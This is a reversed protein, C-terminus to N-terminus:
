SRSAGSRVQESTESETRKGFLLLVLLGLLLGNRYNLVLVGWLTHEDLIFRLVILPYILTTLICAQLFISRSLRGTKGDLVTLFPILWTLFQPSLVKGSIMFALVAAGAYRVGEKMGSRRYRWMVFILGLCQMPLAIRAFPNGWDPTVHLAGHNYSWTVTQGTAKGYLMLLGAYLSEVELGRDAHYLFSDAVRRGGLWIWYAMGIAVTAVFSLLGRCRIQRFWSAEWVLAPAVIAGPFIKVLFGVGALVGGLINRGSFWYHSAAFAVAM